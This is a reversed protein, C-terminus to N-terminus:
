RGYYIAHLTHPDAGVYYALRLRWMLVITRFVGHKEWRRGSTSVRVQRINAPFQMYRARACFGIDEMLPQQPFGGMRNFLDRSCFLAQDGTAIGTLASRHNMFWAIVPLMWHAGEITVDFRGWAHTALANAIWVDADIPLQTDAHLFLLADGRALAAGANMQVARGPSTTIAQDVLGAAHQLTADHSGGDVLVLEVGRARLPQLATLTTVIHAAENCTPIIISLQM